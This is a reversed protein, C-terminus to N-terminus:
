VLYFRQQVEVEDFPSAQVIRQHKYVFLQAPSLQTPQAAGKMLVRGLKSYVVSHEVGGVRVVGILRCAVFQQVKNSVYPQHPHGEEAVEGKEFWAM